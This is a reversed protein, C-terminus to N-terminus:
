QFLVSYRKRMRTLFMTEFSEDIGDAFHILLEIDLDLQEAYLDNLFARILKDRSFGIEECLRDIASVFSLLERSREVFAQEINEKSFREDSKIGDSLNKVFHLCSFAAYVPRILGQLAIVTTLTFNKLHEWKKSVKLDTGRFHVTPASDWLLSLEARDQRAAAEILLSVREDATLKSYLKDNIGKM